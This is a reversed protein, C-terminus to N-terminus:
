VKVGEDRGSREVCVSAVVLSLPAAFLLSFPFFYAFGLCSLHAGVTAGSLEVSWCASGRASEAWM